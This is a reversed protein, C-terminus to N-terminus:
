TERLYAFIADTDSVDEATKKMKTPIANSTGM